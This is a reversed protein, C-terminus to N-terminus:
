HAKGWSDRYMLRKGGTQKVALVAREGDSVERANYRFDFESLYRHLHQRGVHQYVGNIGRKLTSFYGENKRARRGRAKL